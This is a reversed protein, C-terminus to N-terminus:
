SPAHGCRAREVRVGEMIGREVMNQVIVWNGHSMELGEADGIIVHAMDRIDAPQLEGPVRQSMEDRMLRQAPTVEYGKRQAKLHDKKKGM